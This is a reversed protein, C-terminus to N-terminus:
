WTSRVQLDDDNQKHHTQLDAPALPKLDIAFNSRYVTGTVNQTKIAIVITAQDFFLTCQAVRARVQV